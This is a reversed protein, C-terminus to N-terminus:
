GRFGTGAGAGDASLQAFRQQRATATASEVYKMGGYFAGGGVIIVMVVILVKNM